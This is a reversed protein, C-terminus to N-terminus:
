KINFCLLIAVIRSNIVRCCDVSKQKEKLSPYRSYNLVEYIFLSQVDEVKSLRM